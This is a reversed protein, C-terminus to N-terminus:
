SRGHGRFLDLRGGLVQPEDAPFPLNPTAREMAGGLIRRLWEGEPYPLHERSVQVPAAKRLNTTFIGAAARPQDAVALALASADGKVGRPTAWPRSGLPRRRRM